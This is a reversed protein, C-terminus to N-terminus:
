DQKVGLLENTKTICEDKTKLRNENTMDKGWKDKPLINTIIQEKKDNYSIVPKSKIKLANTIIVMVLKLQAELGRQKKRLRDYCEELETDDAETWSM